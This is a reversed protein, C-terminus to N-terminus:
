GVDAQFLHLLDKFGRPDLRRNNVDFGMRIERLPVMEVKASLIANHQLGERRQPMTALRSPKGPCTSPLQSALLTASLPWMKCFGCWASFILSPQSNGGPWFSIEVSKGSSATYAIDARALVEFCDDALM